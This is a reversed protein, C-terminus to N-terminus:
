TGKKCLDSFSYRKCSKRSNSNIVGNEIYLSCYDKYLLFYRQIYHEDLYRNKYLLTEM